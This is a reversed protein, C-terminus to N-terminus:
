IGALYFAPQGHIRNSFDQPTPLDLENSKCEGHLVPSLINAEQSTYEASTPRM